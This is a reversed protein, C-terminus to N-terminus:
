RHGYVIQYYKKGNIVVSGISKYILLKLILRLTFLHM